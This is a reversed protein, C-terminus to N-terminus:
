IFTINGETHHVLGGDLMNKWKEKSVFNSTGFTSANPACWECLEDLTKFVPSSPSGETTTEWLQFGPGEPPETEKWAERKELDDPHCAEGKCTQCVGWDDGVGAAKQLARYLDYAQVGLPHRVSKDPNNILKDIFDALDPTPRIGPNNPLGEMYPHIWDLGNRTNVSTQAASLIVYCLDMLVVAGPTEGRICKKEPCERYYGDPMLYGTWVKDKPWNFNMPVMKLERGM